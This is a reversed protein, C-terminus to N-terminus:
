NNNSEIKKFSIEKLKGNEPIRYGDYIKRYYNRNKKCVLSVEFLGHYLRYGDIKVGKPLKEKMMKDLRVIITEESDQCDDNITLHAVVHVDNPDDDISCVISDRVAPDQRLQNAIDFLYVVNGDADKVHQQMRGYIYIKGDDGIEVYDGSHVWGDIMVHETLEKNHYYGTSMSPSKIWLEGRQNYGLENGQEDFVGVTVGLMPYGVSIAWRSYDREFVGPIFDLSAVGFVETMGYGSILPTKSNCQELLDNMFKLAEPTCGEGGMIPMIFFSLDPKKGAAIMKEVHLFFGEWLRGPVLTIQPKITLIQKNFNDQNLRPDMYVTMGKMLPFIMLIVLGTCVFPPLQVLCRAGPVFPSGEFMSFAHGARIMKLMGADSMGIQKAKGHVSTGGSSFMFVSKNKVAPAQLQGHYNGYKKLAKQLTIYKERHRAEHNKVSNMLGLFQKLPTKMSSTADLVVVHKFQEKALVDTLKDELIDIVFAVKANGVTNPLVDLASSLNPMIVVAGIMNAAFLLYLAEPTTPCFFLIEDGPIVGMGKLMRAWQYVSEILESRKIHRGFYVIADHQDQDKKLEREVYQWLTEKPMEQSLVEQFGAPYYKEWRKEQSPTLGQKNLDM